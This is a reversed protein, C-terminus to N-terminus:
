GGPLCGKYRSGNGPIAYISQGEARGNWFWGCENEGNGRHDINRKVRAIPGDRRLRQCAPM